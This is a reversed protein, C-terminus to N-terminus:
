GFCAELTGFHEQAKIRYDAGPSIGQEEALEIVFAADEARLAKDVSGGIGLCSATPDADAFAPTGATLVVALLSGLLLALIRRM